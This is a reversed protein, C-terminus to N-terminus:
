GSGNAIQYAIRYKAGPAANLRPRLLQYVAALIGRLPPRQRKGGAFSAHGPSQEQISSLSTRSRAATKVLMAPLSRGSHRYLARNPSTTVGPM